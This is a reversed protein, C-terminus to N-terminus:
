NGENHGNGYVDATDWFTVGMDAARTLVKFNEEEAKTPGYFASMGMAGFGVINDSYSLLPNSASVNVGSNGLKRTPYKSMKNPISIHLIEQLYKL